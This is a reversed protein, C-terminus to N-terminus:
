EKSLKKLQEYLTRLDFASEEGCNKALSLANDLAKMQENSPKWQSQPKLSKVFEQQQITLPYNHDFSYIISKYTREDEESWEQKPQPQVRDKLSKLWDITFDEIGENGNLSTNRILACASKLKVEDEESWAPKKMEAITDARGKEYETRLLTKMDEDTPKQEFPADQVSNFKEVTIKLLVDSNNKIYEKWGIEKGIWGICIDAVTREFDTLGEYEDIPEIKRLKKKEADWEYGNEKMKKFLLDCQEKTAPHIINKSEEINGIGTNPKGIHYPLVDEGDNSIIFSYLIAMDHNFGDYIFTKGGMLDQFLVDGDKADKTIDWLRASTDVTGYELSIRLGNQDILEYWCGNYNVKYCKDQWVVFDGEHFKPEVKDALKQENRKLACNGKCERAYNFQCDECEKRQGYPKQKGQKELWALMEEKTITGTAFEVGYKRVADSICRKIREDESEKLEPFARYFCNKISQINVVEAGTETIENLADLNDKIVKIVEDYAKAKDELTM